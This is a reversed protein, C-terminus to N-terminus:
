KLLSTPNVVKITLHVKIKDYEVTSKLETITQLVAKRDGSIIVVATTM